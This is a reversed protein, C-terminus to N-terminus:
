DLRGKEFINLLAFVVFLALITYVASMPAGRMEDARGMPRRFKYWRQARIPQAASDTV